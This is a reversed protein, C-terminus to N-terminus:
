ADSDKIPTHSPLLEGCSPCNNGPRVVKIELPPTEQSGSAIDVSRRIEGWKQSMAILANFDSAGSDGSVFRQAMAPIALLFLSSIAREVLGMKEDADLHEANDTMRAISEALGESIVPPEPPPKAKPTNATSRKIRVSAGCKDSCYKADVRKNHM